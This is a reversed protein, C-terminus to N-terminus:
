RCLFLRCRHWYLHNRPQDRRDALPIRGVYTNAGVGANYNIKALQTNVGAAQAVITKLAPTGNTPCTGDAARAVFCDGGTMSRKLADFRRFTAYNLFNGDWETTLCATALTAKVTSSVFRTDTTDYTYCTLPDFYGSYSTTNTFTLDGVDICDGDDTATVPWTM